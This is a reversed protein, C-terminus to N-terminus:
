EPKTKRAKMQQQKGVMWAVGEVVAVAILTGAADFLWDHLDATRGAFPQTLEDAAAYTLLVAIMWMLRRRRPVGYALMTVGFASALGTFGVLHLTKDGVHFNPVDGPPLHTLTFAAAWLLVLLALVAYRCRHLLLYLKM